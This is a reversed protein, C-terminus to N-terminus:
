PAPRDTFGLNILSGSDTETVDAYSYNTYGLFDVTSKDIATRTATYSSMLYSGSDFDQDSNKQLGIEDAVVKIMGQTGQKLMNTMALLILVVAGVVIAYELFIQAAKNNKQNLSKM